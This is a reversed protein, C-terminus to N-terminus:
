ALLIINKRAIYYMKKVRMSNIVNINLDRGDTSKFGSDPIPAWMLDEDWNFNYITKRSPAILELRCEKHDLKYKKSVHEEGHYISTETISLNSFRVIDKVCMM